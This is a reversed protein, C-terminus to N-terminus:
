LCEDDNGCFFLSQRMHNGARDKVRNPVYQCEIDGSRVCHNFDKKYWNEPKIPKNPYKAYYIANKYAGRVYFFWSIVREVPDRVLNIYIPKPLHYKTFNLWNCHEIYVTGPQLDALWDIQEREQKPNRTRVALQVPSNSIVKMNNRLALQELLEMLSESGVKAVRNFFLVNVEAYKTNNLRSPNM